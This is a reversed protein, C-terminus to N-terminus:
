ISNPSFLLSLSNGLSEIMNTFRNKPMSRPITSIHKKSVMLYNSDNKDSLSLQTDLYNESIELNKNYLISKNESLNKSSNCSETDEDMLFM